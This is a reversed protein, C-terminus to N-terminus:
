CPFNLSFFLHLRAACCRAWFEAPQGHPRRGQGSSSVPPRSKEKRKGKASSQASDAPNGVLGNFHFLGLTGKTSYVGVLLRQASSGVAVPETGMAMADNAHCARADTLTCPAHWGAELSTM